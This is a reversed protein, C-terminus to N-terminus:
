QYYYEKDVSNIAQIIKQDFYDSDVLNEVQSKYKDDCDFGDINFYYQGHEISEVDVDLEVEITTMETELDADIYVEAQTTIFM